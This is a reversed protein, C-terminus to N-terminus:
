EFVKVFSQPLGGSRARVGQQVASTPTIFSVAGDLSPAVRVEDGVHTLAEFLQITGVHADLGRERLFRDLVGEDLQAADVPFTQTELLASDGVLPTGNVSGDVAGAEDLLIESKSCSGPVQAMAKIRYAVCPTGTLPSTCLSSAAVQGRAVEQVAEGSGRLAAPLRWRAPPLPFLSRIVRSLPLLTASSIPVALSFSLVCLFLLIIFIPFHHVQTWLEIDISLLSFFLLSLAVVTYWLPKLGKPHAKRRQADLDQAHTATDEYTFDVMAQGCAPCTKDTNQGLCGCDMCCSLCPFDARTPGFTTSGGRQLSDKMAARMAGRKMKLNHLVRETRAVQHALAEFGAASGIGM